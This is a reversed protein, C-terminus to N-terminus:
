PRERDARLWDVASGPQMPNRASIEDMMRCAAEADRRKLWAAVAENVVRSREGRPTAQLAEWVTDDFVINSRVSM